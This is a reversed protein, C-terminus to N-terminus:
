SASTAVSGSNTNARDQYAWVNNGRTYDYDTGGNGTNWKLSTANGPAATWPDTKLAHAGGPFSPAEAPFPVVRYGATTIVNPDQSTKFDAFIKSEKNALLFDPYKINNNLDPTGWNDYDTYNDIGLIANNEADVRVMWYDSTTKPVIYVHWSLRVAKSNEVATWMLQATINEHSIGMNSFEVLSGNEKRNLAIAPQSAHLGRDSLASQVASEASIAPIGSKVNIQKELGSKFSGAKSVLSEGKYALVLMQNYVPIGKCTQLLYVMRLGTTKDLYSSSVKAQTLDEATLGLQAKSARVLSIAANEDANGFQANAIFVTCLLPLFFLLFKRM